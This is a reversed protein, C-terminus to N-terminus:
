FSGGGRSRSSGGSNSSSAKKTRTVNRYLYIDSRATINMSGQRVYVNAQNQARVSRLQGKLILAVILGVVLGIALSILLNQGFKFPFGNVHGDLYYDCQDAFELFADQYDVDSLDSVIADCIRDIAGPDIAVGAFGNSLIRYERLDMAVLLLAGDHNAGYGFGMSDYLHDLYDDIDGGPTSAITCIVIQADYRDSVAALKQELAAKESGTLLNAEDYLFGDGAASVCIALSICLLLALLASLIKRTM